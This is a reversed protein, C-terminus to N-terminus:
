DENFMRLVLSSRGYNTYGLGLSGTLGDQGDAIIDALEHAWARARETNEKRDEDWFVAALVSHTPDRRFATVGGSVSSIKGLPFHEILLLGRFGPNKSLQIVKSYAKAISPYHSRHQALGKMYVGKGAPLLPNQPSM